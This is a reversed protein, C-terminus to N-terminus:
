NIDFRYKKKNKALFFKIEKWLNLRNSLICLIIIKLDHKKIFNSM